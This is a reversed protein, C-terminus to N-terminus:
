LATPFPPDDHLHYPPQPSPQGRLDAEVKLARGLSCIIQQKKHPSLYKNRNCSLGLFLQSHWLDGNSLEALPNIPPDPTTM